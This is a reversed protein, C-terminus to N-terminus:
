RARRRRGLSRLLAAAGLLLAPSGGTGCGCSQTACEIQVLFDQEAAGAENQAVLTVRVPGKTKAEPTWSVEGTAADIAMGAPAGASGSRKGLSWTIPGTGTATPRSDEDYRWAEGCRGAAAPTSEIRPPTASGLTSATAEAGARCTAGAADTVLLEATLAGPAAITRTVKGDHLQADATLGDSFSWRASAVRSSTSGFRAAYTVKLPAPGFDPEAWLGCFPPEQGGARVRIEVADESVCAGESVSLRVLSSGPGFTHTVSPGFGTAGDGFDWRYAAGAGVQRCDCGFVATLGEDGRTLDATIRATGPATCAASSIAVARSAQARQGVADFVELTVVQSGPRAWTHTATVGTDAAVGLGWTWEYSLPAAGTSASADAAVAAGAVASSPTLDFAAVPPAPVAAQVQVTFRATAEGCSGSVRLCLPTPGAQAPTWSVVGTTADVRLGPPPADCAAFRLPGTGKLLPVQGFPGVRYPVGVAAALNVAGVQPSRCCGPIVAHACGTTAGCTDTTCADGDDCGLAPGAACAGGACTERGNCLDGDDCPTGDVAAPCVTALQHTAPTLGASSATLSQAHVVTDRFHFLARYAGAPVAAATVAPGCTGDAHFTLSPLAASLAVSAGQASPASNGSADKLEVIVQESCALAELSAPARAFALRAPPGATVVEVQQVAADLGLTSVTLTPTGLAAEEFYFGARGGDAPLLVQSVASECKQDAFFTGADSSSALTTLADGAQSVPNGVDDQVQVEALASCTGASVTQPPTTFALRAPPGAFIVQGQTAPPVGPVAVTLVPTGVRDDRFFFRVRSEGGDLGVQTAAGSCDAAPFFRTTAASSSLAVATPASVPALNGLADELEGAVEASCAGARLTQPATRLVLAAAPGPQVTVTQAGPTLGPATATIGWPGAVTDKFYFTAETGGALMTVQTGPVTCSAELYPGGTTSSTTLAVTTDAAFAVANGTADQSEITLEASCAGAVPTRPTNVFALRALPGRNITALQTADVLGSVRAILLPSGARPEKFYVTTRTGGAAISAQTIAASCAADGHFEFSSSASSLAVATPTAVPSPNDFDDRVEITVLASCNGATLTQPATVFVLRTPPAPGVTAGQTPATLGPNSATLTPAGVGEDRYYFSKSHTNAAITAQTVRVACATDSYFAGRGSTTALALPTSSLVIAPNGFGDRSQGTLPGLCEGAVGSRPPTAFALQSPPASRVTQTQNASALGSASATIAPAGAVTDKFYAGVTDAGAGMVVSPVASACAGTASFALTTSSAALTITTNAPVAAPNGFSDQAQILMVPSCNGAAVSVPASIFVLRTPGSASITQAQSAPNLPSSSATLTVAGAASGIFYFTEESSAATVTVSTTAGTCGAASFFAVTAPLASLGVSTAAAVPSPNGFADQVQVVAAGSCAGATVTQPSSSFALRAPAAPDIAQAQTGNLFGAAAATVVPTGALTDKFYVDVTSAGSAIPATGSATNCGPDIFFTAGASTSSFTVPTQAGVSSPNGYTDQSQFSVVLSCQGAVVTRAPTLAVLKSPAAAVVSQTQSGGTLGASALEVAPAGALTEKFYFVAGSQGELITASTVSATCTSNSFFALSGSPSSLAVSTATGVTAPAGGATQSQAVLQGSCAGATVAQASTSFGLRTALSAVDVMAPVSLLDTTAATLTARGATTPRFYVTAQSTGVSLAVQSIATGCGPDSYFSGGVGAAALTVATPEPVPRPTGDSDRATVSVAGSCAQDTMAPATLQLRSPMVARSARLDDFDDIGEFVRNTSYPQGDVLLDVALGTFNLGTAQAALTGDLYLRRTGSGSGLGSVVLEVLHWANTSAVSSSSTLAYSAAADYGGLSLTGNGAVLVEAIARGSFASSALSGITRSGNGNAATPRWFFRRYVTPSAFTIKSVQGAGAGAGSQGDSDTVRLGFGGRHAAAATAFATVATAGTVFTSAAKGPPTSSVALTGSELENFHQNVASATGVPATGVYVDDLQLTIPVSQPDAFDALGVWATLLSHAVMDGPAAEVRPTAPDDVYLAVRPVAPQYGLEVYHWTGETIRSALVTGFSTVTGGTNAYDLRLFLAGTADKRLVLSVKAAGGSGAGGTVADGLRVLRLASNTGMAAQTGSPVRLWFRVWPTTIASAFDVVAAAQASGGAGAFTFSLSRTDDWAEATSQSLTNAGNVRTTSWNSFGTQPPEFGDTFPLTAARATGVALVLALAGLLNGLRM